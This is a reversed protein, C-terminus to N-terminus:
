SVKSKERSKKASRSSWVAATGIILLVVAPVYHYVALFVDMLSRTHRKPIEERAYKPYLCIDETVPQEPDFREGTDERYWGLFDEDDRVPIDEFITGPEVAYYAYYGGDPTEQMRVICFPADEVWLRTLFAAREKLYDAIYAAEDRLGDTKVNWRIRNRDFPRALATEYEDIHKTLMEDLAPLFVTKFEEKLRQRFGDKGYLNHFWPTAYGFAAEPRWAFLGQPSNLSWVEPNGLSSDFDWVPGAYIKGDGATDYCYFYQSQFGADYSGFLEEIMYKKVWSDLDIYEQWGDEGTLANEMAQFKRELAGIDASQRIQLYQRSDTVFYPDTDAEIRSDRDMCVLSGDPGLDVRQPDAEVKETLLYLGAYEGNLYVETWRCEPVYNIDVRAAYDLVIKNRMSSADLADALLLWDKAAGMGLLDGDETLDLSYPKKEHVDWTSNGRGRVSKLSGSYNLVGEADYLRISGREANGKEEHIYEMSGSQTSLYLTAVGGSAMLYLTGQRPQGNEEWALHYTHAPELADCAAPLQMGDLTVADQRPLLVAEEFRIHGPLFGYYNEGDATWVNVTEEGAQIAVPHAPVPEPAAHVSLLIIIVLVVASFLSLGFKGKNM